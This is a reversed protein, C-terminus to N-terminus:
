DDRLISAPNKSSNVKTISYTIIMILSLVMLGSILFISASISTQYTFNSLWDIGFYLTILIGFAFAFALLRLFEYSIIGLLHRFKAGLVKRIGFEKTRQETTFSILGILGLIAISIALVTFVNLVSAFQRQGKFSKDFEQDVFHYNFPIGPNLDNWLKELNNVVNNYNGSLVRGVLFNENRWMPSDKHLLALPEVPSHLAWFNFDKMVGIVTFQLDDYYSVKKGIVSEIDQDPSVWEMQLACKENIIISQIDGEGEDFFNRGAELEIGLTPMFQPDTLIMTVALDETKPSNLPKLNDQNWCNPPVHSTLSPNKLLGSSIVQDRFLEGDDALWELHEIAILNESEFGLEKTNLFDLQDQVLLTSSILAISITFQFIVLGNRLNFKDHSKMKSGKIADVLNFRTMFWAPYSGALLGIILIMLIMIMLITPDSFLNLSISKDALSNFYPKALEAIGFGLLVSISSFMMSEMLFQQSIQSKSSGMVKKIGIEKARQGFRATSLNMFNICSLLLILIAVSIFINVRSQSGVPGLRNPIAGSRLRIDTINQLELTWNKQRAEEDGVYQAPLSALASNVKESSADDHLLVYTVFATWIWSDSRDIINKFTNMSILMDFHFHSQDPINDIVATVKFTRLDSGVGISIQKGVASELPFYKQAHNKTLVISKPNLLATQLNGEIAQFTFIDFLEPDSSLIRKEKFSKRQGANDLVSIVQESGFYPTHLRIVKDVEPINAKIAQAVAPSTSGFMDNSEIWINTMNIRFVEDKNVHFQDYSYEDDVYLYILLFCAAGIALGLLNLITFFKQRLMLRLAIKIRHYLM